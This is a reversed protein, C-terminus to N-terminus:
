LSGGVDLWEGCFEEIRFPLQILQKTLNLTVRRFANGSDLLPTTSFSDTHYVGLNSSMSHM